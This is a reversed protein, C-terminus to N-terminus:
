FDGCFKCFLGFRLHTPHASLYKVAQFTFSTNANSGMIALWFVAKKNLRPTLTFAADYINIQKMVNFYSRSNAMCLQTESSRLALVSLEVLRHVMINQHPSPQAIVLCFFRCFLDHLAFWYCLYFFNFDHM